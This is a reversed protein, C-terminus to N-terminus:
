AAGGGDFIFEQEGQAIKDLSITKISLTGDENVSIEDSEKIVPVTINVRGDVVDMLTGNVTVEKIVGSLADEVEAMTVHGSNAIAANIQDMIPEDGVRQQLDMIDAAMTAVEGGHNSVYTVLEQITNITGDDTVRAAFENIKADIMADITGAGTGDIKHEIGEIRDLLSVAGEGSPSVIEQITTVTTQLNTVNTQLDAVADQLDASPMVWELNGDEGKRPQAGVEAADFGMLKFVGDEVIVSKGDATVNVDVGGIVPLNEYTLTGDGIKLTHLELDYCPEGAAPVVDKHALWEATTGRRFQFVTRILTAM